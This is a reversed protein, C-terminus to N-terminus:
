TPQSRSGASTAAAGPTGNATPLMTPGNEPESALMPPSRMEGRGGAAPEGGAPVHRDDAVRVRAAEGSAPRAAGPEGPRGSRGTARRDGVGAADSRDSRSRGSLHLM